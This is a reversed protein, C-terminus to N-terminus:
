SARVHVSLGPDPRGLEVLEEIMELRSKGMNERAGHGRSLIDVNPLEKGGNANAGSGVLLLSKDNSDLVTDHVRHSEGLSQRGIHGLLAQVIDVKEHSGDPKVDLQELLRLRPDLEPITM